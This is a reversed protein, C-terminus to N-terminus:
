EVGDEEGFEDKDDGSYDVSISKIIARKGGVYYEKLPTVVVGERGKFDSRPEGLTTPGSTIERLMEKSFEGIFLIPVLPVKAASCALALDQYDLFRGDVMIDFVRFAVTGNPVGYDMKQMGPGYVEGYVVVNHQGDCLNNILTLVDGNEMPSWYPCFRGGEPQKRIHNHSGAVFEFHGDINLIGVRCNRGHIKETVRVMTGEMILNPYKQFREIDTYRPFYEHAPHHQAAHSCERLPPTYKEVKLVKNLAESNMPIPLGATDLDDDSFVCGFSPEGRLRVAGVRCNSKAHDGPYIAMKLYKSVSLQAAISEPILADPPVYHVVDRKQFKGKPVVSTISGENMVIIELRDANPHAKVEEIVLIDASVDSM